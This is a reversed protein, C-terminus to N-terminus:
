ESIVREMDRDMADFGGNIEDMILEVDEAASDQSEMAAMEEDDEEDINKKKV